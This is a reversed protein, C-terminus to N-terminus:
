LVNRQALLKELHQAWNGAALPNEAAIAEHLLRLTQRVAAPSHTREPKESTGRLKKNENELDFIRRTLRHIQKIPTTQEQTKLDWIPANLEAELAALRKESVSSDAFTRGDAFSPDVTRSAWQRDLKRRQM